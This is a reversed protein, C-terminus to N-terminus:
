QMSNADSIPRKKDSEPTFFKSKLWASLLSQM